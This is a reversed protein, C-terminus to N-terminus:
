SEAFDIERSKVCSLTLLQTPEDYGVIKPDIMMARAFACTTKTGLFLTLILM